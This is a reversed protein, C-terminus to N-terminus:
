EDAGLALRLFGDLFLSDARAHGVHRFAPQATHERVPGGHVGTDLFQITELLQALRALDVAEGFFFAQQDTAFNVAQEGAEFANARHLAQGFQDEHHVHPARPASRVSASAANSGFRSAFPWRAVVSTPYVSPM